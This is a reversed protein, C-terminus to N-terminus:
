YILIFTIFFCLWAFNIEDPLAFLFHHPNSRLIFTLWDFSIEVCLKSKERKEEEETFVIPMLHAYM